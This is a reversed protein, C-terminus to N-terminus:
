KKGFRHLLTPLLFHSSNLAFVVASSVSSDNFILLIGTIFDFIIGLYNNLV